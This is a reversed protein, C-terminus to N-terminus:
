HLANQHRKSSRNQLCRVSNKVSWGPCERQWVWWVTSSPIHNHSRRNLKSNKIYKIRKSHTCHNNQRSQNSHSLLLMCNLVFTLLEVMVREYASFPGHSHVTSLLSSNKASKFVEPPQLISAWLQESQTCGARSQSSWTALPLTGSAM